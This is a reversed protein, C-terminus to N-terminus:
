SFTNHGPPTWRGGHWPVEDRLSIRWRPWSTVTVTLPKMPFWITPVKIFDPFPDQLQNRIEIWDQILQIIMDWNIHKITKSPDQAGQRWCITPSATVGGKRGRWVTSELFKRGQCLSQISQNVAWASIGATAQDSSTTDFKNIAKQFVVCVCVCM